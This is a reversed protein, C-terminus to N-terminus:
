FFIWYTLIALLAIVVPSAALVGNRFDRLDRSASDLDRRYSRYASV